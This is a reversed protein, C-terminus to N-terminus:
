SMNKAAIIRSGYVNDIIVDGISIPLVAKANNILQMCEAIKDKPIPRDTKVPLLRGNSCRVTSTVTRTPNTCESRAYDAGRPCSNGEISIVKGNDIVAKIRCGMPCTICTLIRETM